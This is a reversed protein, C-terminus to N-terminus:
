NTITIWTDAAMDHKNIYATNNKIELIAQTNEDYISTIPININVNKKYEDNIETIEQMINNVTISEIKNAAANVEVTILEDIDLRSLDYALGKTINYTYEIDDQLSEIDDIIYSYQDPHEQIWKSIEELTDLTEKANDAILLEEIKSKTIYSISGDGDGYLKDYLELFETRPTVDYSLGINYTIGTNDINYSINIISEVDSTISIGSQQLQRIQNALSGPVDPDQMNTITEVIDSIREVQDAPIGYYIGDTYIMNNYPLFAIMHSADLVSKISNFSNESMIKVFIHDNTLSELENTSINRVEM